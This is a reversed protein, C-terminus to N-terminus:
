FRKIPPCLVGEPPFFVETSFELTQAGHKENYQVTWGAAQYQTQLAEVIKATARFDNPISYSVKMGLSSYKEKLFQDIDKELKGYFKSEEETLKGAEDPTIVM